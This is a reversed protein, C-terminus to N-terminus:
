AACCGCTATRTSPSGAARWLTTTTPTMPCSAGCPRTTPTSSACSNATGTNASGRATHAPSTTHPTTPIRCWTHPTTSGSTPTARRHAKWRRSTQGPETRWTCPPPPIITQEWPTSAEQWWCATALGASATPSTASPATPSSPATPRCSVGTRCRTPM